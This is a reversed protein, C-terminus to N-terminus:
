LYHVVRGDSHIGTLKRPRTPDAPGDLLEKKLPTLEKDYDSAHPEGHKLVIHVEPFGIRIFHEQLTFAHGFDVHEDATAVYIIIKTPMPTWNAPKIKEIREMASEVAWFQKWLGTSSLVPSLIMGIPPFSPGRVKFFPVKAKIALLRSLIREIEQETMDMEMYSKVNKRNYYGVLPDDWVLHSIRFGKPWEERRLVLEAYLLWTPTAGFSRGFMYGNEWDVHLNPNLKQLASELDKLIFTVFASMTEEVQVGSSEPMKPYGPSVSFM